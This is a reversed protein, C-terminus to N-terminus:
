SGAVLSQLLCLLWQPGCALRGDDHWHHRHKAVLECADRLRLDYHLAGFGQSHGKVDHPLVCPHPLRFRVLREDGQHLSSEIDTTLLWPSQAGSGFGPGGYKVSRASVRRGPREQGARTALFARM